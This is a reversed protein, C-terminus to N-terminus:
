KQVVSQQQQQMQRGAPLEGDGREMIVLLDFWQEFMQKELNMCRQQIAELYQQLGERLILEGTAGGRLDDLFNAAQVYVSNKGQSKAGLAKLGDRVQEICYHVSRPFSRNFIILNVVQDPRIKAKYMRRYAGYGSVSRLLAQWQHLDLPRGVEEPGPLLIHYKIELIRCSMIAREMFAGLQLFQWAHAHVMTNDALGHFGNCFVQIRQNFATSGASLMQNSRTDRFELYMGNLHFWMEESIHERMTRAAERAARIRTLVSDPNESSFLLFDYINEENINSYISRFLAHSRTINLIPSWVDLESFYDTELSMRHNVDLIRTVNEAREIHKGLHYMDHALRSLM